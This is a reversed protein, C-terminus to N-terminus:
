AESRRLEEGRQNMETGCKTCTWGGWMAQRFSTPRRVRPVPTGCEPCGGKANVRNQVSASMLLASVVGIVVYVGVYEMTKGRPFRCGNEEDIIPDGRYRSKGYQRFSEGM